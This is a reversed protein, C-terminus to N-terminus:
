IIFKVDRNVFTLTLSSFIKVICLFEYFNLLPYIVVSQRGFGFQTMMRLRMTSQLNKLESQVFASDIQSDPRIIQINMM